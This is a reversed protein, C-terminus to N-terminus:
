ANKDLIWNVVSIVSSALYVKKGLSIAEGKRLAFKLEGSPLGKNDGLVFTPSEFHQAEIQKGSPDLVFVNRSERILEQFPKKSVALGKQISHWNRDKAKFLAKKILFAISQESPEVNSLTGDFRVAVPPNPGGNLSVIIQTDQRIKESLWLASLVCRCVLDLRGYSYLSQLSFNPSTTARSYLIFTRGM